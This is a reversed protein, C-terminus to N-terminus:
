DIGRGLFSNETREQREADDKQQMLERARVGEPHAIKWTALAKDYANRATCIAAFDYYDDNEARDVIRLLPAVDSEWDIEAPTPPATEDVFELVDGRGADKTATVIKGYLNANYGCAFMRTVDVKETAGNPRNINLYYADKSTDRDIIEM